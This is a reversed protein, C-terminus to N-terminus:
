AAAGCFTDKSPLDLGTSVAELGTLSKWSPSTIVRFIVMGSSSHLPRLSAIGGGM